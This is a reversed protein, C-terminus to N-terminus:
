FFQFFWIIFIEHKSIFKILYLYMSKHTDSFILLTASLILFASFLFHINKLRKMMPFILIQFNNGLPLHNYLERRFASVIQNKKTKVECYWLSFVLYWHTFLNVTLHLEGRGINKKNTQETHESIM